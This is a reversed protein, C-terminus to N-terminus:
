IPWWRKERGAILKLGAYNEGPNPVPPYDKNKRERKAAAKSATM